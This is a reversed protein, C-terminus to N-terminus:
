EDTRSLMVGHETARSVSGAALFLDVTVVTGQKEGVPGAVAAEEREPRTLDLEDQRQCAVALGDGNAVPSAAPERGVSTAQRCCPRCWVPPVSECM